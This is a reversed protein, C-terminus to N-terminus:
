LGRLHQISLANSIIVVNSRSDESLSRIQPGFNNVVGGLMGVREHRVPRKTVNWIRKIKAFRGIAVRFRYEREKTLVLESESARLNLVCSRSVTVLPKAHTSM